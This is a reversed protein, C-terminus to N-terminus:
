RGIRFRQIRGQRKRDRRLVTSTEFSSYRYDLGGNHPSVFRGDDKTGTFQDNSDTDFLVATDSGGEGFLQVSDFFKARSYVGGKYM